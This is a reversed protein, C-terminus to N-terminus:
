VVYFNGISALTTTGTSEIVTRTAIGGGNFDQNFGPELTQILANSGSVVASQSLYNGNSDVTWVVFQDLAGNKWVIQYVGNVLEAGLPTWNGFQGPAVLSGNYKLQPGLASGGSLSLIYANAIRNLTITGVGEIV